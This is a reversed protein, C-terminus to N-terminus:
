NFTGAITLFRRGFAKVDQQYSEYAAREIETRPFGAGASSAWAEKLVRALDEANLKDHMFPNGPSQEKHVDINSVVLQKGLCKAEEVSTSWGENLSPQMIARSMRYLTVQDERPIIGLLHVQDRIQYKTLMQLIENAFHLNRQDVINGTCVLDVRIGQQKLIYLAEFLTKHNKTPCFSNSVIVFDEPIRYKAVVSPFNSFDLLRPNIYVTFPMSHTKGKTGPFIKNCDYECAASSLVIKSARQAIYSIEDYAGQTFEKSAGEPYHYYQFDAIWSASNLRGNCDSSTYPYVFDYGNAIFYDETRPIVRNMFKRKLFWEVRNSFSWPPFIADMDEIILKNQRFKEIETFHQRAAKILHIEVPYEEGVENLAHIINTIYQVGGIWNISGLGFLGIKRVEKM